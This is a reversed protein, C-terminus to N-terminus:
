ENPPTCGKNNHTGGTYYYHRLAAAKNKLESGENAQVASVTLLFSAIFLLYKLDITKM